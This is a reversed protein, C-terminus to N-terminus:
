LYSLWWHKNASKYDNYKKCFPYLMMVVLMWVAYVIGLGFGFGPPRFLFPSQVSVIDGVGYGSIFFAAATLLHILYIHTIYYFFPVRGFIVTTNMIRGKWNESIALFILATGITVSLFLLSPPYKNVNIFSLLTFLTNRQPQWAEPDGYLNFYRLVFFLVLLASGALMLFQKRKAADVNKDYLKGFCYGVAMLGTWPLFPYAIVIYRNEAYEYASFNGHHLLNWWFTTNGNADYGVNDLLNHGFVITLGFLLIIYFPLWVLLGLIMMSIGIAWIVQLMFVNFLSNFTWGFAVITIEVVVLWLGRTLLFRSLEAKTRKLSLFYASTGALFVFVPACFHTFWRTFFLVPSTTTIDLPDHVFADHHFFDRVHDLAMVVMVMGRLLDISQIRSATNLNQPV